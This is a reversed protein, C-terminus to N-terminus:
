TKMARMARLRLRNCHRHATMSQWAWIILWTHIGFTQIEVSCMPIDNDLSGCRSVINDTTFKRLLNSGDKHNMYTWVVDLVQILTTSNITTGVIMISHDYTRSSESDNTFNVSKDINNPSIYVFSPLQIYLCRTYRRIYVYPYDVTSIMICMCTVYMYLTHLINCLM